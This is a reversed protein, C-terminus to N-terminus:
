LCRAPSGCIAKTEGSENASIVPEVVTSTVPSETSLTSSHPPISEKAVSAESGNEAAQVGETFLKPLINTAALAM